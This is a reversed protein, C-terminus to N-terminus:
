EDIDSFPFWLTIRFLDQAREIDVQGCMQEMMKKMNQMGIRTGQVEEMTERIRNGLQIGFYDKSLLSSLTVPYNKDAYKEINSILNNFIRGMFDSDIRIDIDFWKLSNSDVQFGSVELQSCLDSLFDGLAYYASVSTELICTKEDNSLFHDFLKDSLERIQNTKGIAKSLYEDMAKPNGLNRKGLELYGLLGSLPTCLDHAMGLVLTEQEKKRVKENRKSELLADRMHNLAGALNRLEDNGNETFEKELNAQQETIESQLQLVYHIRRSFSFSFFLAWALASIGAAAVTAIQYYSRQFNKHIYVDAPGDAFTVEYFFKWTKHLQLADTESFPANGMYSNDFLLVRERSVSFITINNQETWRRLAAFDTAAINRESVYAQLSDVYKKEQDIIFTSNFFYDDLLVKFLFILVFFLGIAISMGTFFRISLKTKLSVFKKKNDM